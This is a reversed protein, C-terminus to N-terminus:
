PIWSETCSGEGYTRLEGSAPFRYILGPSTTARFHYSRCEGATTLAVSYTGAQAQGIDLSMAHEVGGLVLVVQQPPYGPSDFYSALFRTEGGFFIHSGDVLPPRYGDCGRAYDLVAYDSADGAGLAAHGASMLLDRHGDCYDGDACCLGGVRDCLWLNIRRRPDTLGWLVAEGNFACPPTLFSSVRTPASTGDCSDHQLGCGNVQMDDAHYRAARNLGECYVLPQVAPFLSESLIGSASPSNDLMYADRYERPAMRVANNLVTMARENWNPYGETEVGYGYGRALSWPATGYEFGDEFFAGSVVELAFDSGAGVILDASTYVGDGYEDLVLDYEGPELPPGQVVEAIFAGGGGTAVILDPAGSHDVFHDGLQWVRNKVIFVHASPLLQGPVTFDLDGTVCITEDVQFSTKPDIMQGCDVSWLTNAVGSAPFIILACAVVAEVLRRETGCKAM